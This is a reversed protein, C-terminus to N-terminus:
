PSGMYAPHAEIEDSGPSPSFVTHSQQRWASLFPHVAFVSRDIEAQSRVTYLSVMGFEGKLTADSWRMFRIISLLSVDRAVLETVLARRISHWGFAKGPLSIGVKGVMRHFMKTMYYIDSHTYGVIYSKIEEPVLHTVVRGGKATNIKVKDVGVEATCLEERRLGYITSLALVSLERDTLVERGREIFTRVEHFSMIPRNVEDSSVKRMSLRPFGEPWKQIQALLKLPRMMVEISSQKWGAERLQALFKIVDARDYNDKEGCCRIFEGVKSRWQRATFVSKGRAM